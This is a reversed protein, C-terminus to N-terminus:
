EQHRLALKIKGALPGMQIDILVKILRRWTAKTDRRMWQQMMKSCAEQPQHSEGANIGSIEAESFELQRAVDQWGTGIENRIYLKKGDYNIVVLQAANVKEDTIMQFNNYNNLCHFCWSYTEGFIPETMPDDAPEITAQPGDYEDSPNLFNQKFKQAHINCKKYTFLETFCQDM